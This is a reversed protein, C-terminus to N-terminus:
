KQIKNEKELGEEPDGFRLHRKRKADAVQPSTDSVRHAKQRATQNDPQKDEQRSEVGEEMGEM